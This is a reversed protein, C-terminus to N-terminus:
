RRTVTVEPDFADPHIETHRPVSVSTLGGTFGFAGNGIVTVSDPISVSTLRNNWFAGASIYTVGAPIAVESLKNSDFAGLGILLVGDPITVHALRNEAFAGTGIHTVSDPITVSTLMKRIFVGDGIRTVPLDNIRPPIRVTRSLGTYGTIEVATGGDIVDFVFNSERNYQRNSACNTFALMAFVAVVFVARKM